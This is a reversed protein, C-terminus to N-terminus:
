QGAKRRRFRDADPCTIFHTIGIGEQRDTPPRCQDDGTADVPFRRGGAPHAIWYVRKGCNPGRCENAHTGAPITFYRPPNSTSSM